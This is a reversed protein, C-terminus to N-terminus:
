EAIAALPGLLAFWIIAWHLLVGPMLRKALVFIVGFLLGNGLFWWFQDFIKLGHQFVFPVAALVIAAWRNIGKRVLASIAFGRYTLEESIGTFFALVLLAARKATTEPYLGPLDRLKDPDLTVSAMIMELAIFAVLAAAAYWLTLRPWSRTPPLGVDALSWGHRVLVSRVIAIKAAYIVATALWFTVFFDVGPISFVDRHLLMQAWGYFFLPFGILIAAIAAWGIERRELPAILAIARSPRNATEGTM